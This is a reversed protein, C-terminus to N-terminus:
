SPDVDDVLLLFENATLIPIGRFPHLALLANDGTVIADANAAVAAGLIADDDTFGTISRDPVVLTAVARLRQVVVQVQESSLRAAFYPRSLVDEMSELMATSAVMEDQREVVASVLTAPLGSDNAAASVLINVDFLVIM